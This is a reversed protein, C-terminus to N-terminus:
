KLGVGLYAGFLLSMKTVDGTDFIISKTKDWSLPVFIFNTDFIFNAEPTGMM